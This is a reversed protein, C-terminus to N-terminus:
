QLEVEPQLLYHGAGNAMIDAYSPIGSVILPKDPNLETFAGILRTIAAVHRAIRVDIPLGVEEDYEAYVLGRQRSARAMFDDVGDLVLQESTPGRLNDMAINPTETMMSQAQTADGIERHTLGRLAVPSPELRLRVGDLMQLDLIAFSAVEVAREHAILADVIPNMPRAEHMDLLMDADNTDTLPTIAWAIQQTLPGNPLAPFNRTLNRAESGHGVSGSPYHVHTDPDPFQHLPNVLRDGYRFQREGWPTPINVYSPVAQGPSNHTFGSANSRPVVILEGQEVVANELVITAALVGAIENPHVGGLIVMKGGPEDGQLYFVPTDAPGGALPAHYDSLMGSNTVGPGLPVAEPTHLRRFTAGSVMTIVLVGVLLLIPSLYKQLM